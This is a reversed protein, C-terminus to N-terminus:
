QEFGPRSGAPWRRPDALLTPLWRNEHRRFALCGSVRDQCVIHECNTKDLVIGADTMGRGTGITSLSWGSVSRRAHDINWVADPDDGENSYTLVAQLKDSADLVLDCTGAPGNFSHIIEQRWKMGDGYLFVADAGSLTSRFYLVKTSDQSGTCISLDGSVTGSNDLISTVWETETKKLLVLNGDQYCILPNGATDTALDMGSVDGAVPITELQWAASGTKLGYVIDRTDPLYCAMHLRDQKDCALACQSPTEGTFAMITEVTWITAEQHAFKLLRSTRDVYLAYRGFSSDSVTAFDTIETTKRDLTLPAWVEDERTWLILEGNPENYALVLPTLDPLVGSSVIDAWTDNPDIIETGVNGVEIRAYKLRGDWRYGMHATQLNDVALNNTGTGEITTSWNEGEPSWRFYSLGTWDYQYLIHADGKHDHKMYYCESRCYQHYYSEIKEDRWYGEDTYWSLNIQVVMAILM